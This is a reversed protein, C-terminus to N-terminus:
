QEFPSQRQLTDGPARGSKDKVVCSTNTGCAKVTNTRMRIYYTTDSTGDRVVAVTDPTIRRFTDDDPKGAHADAAADLKKERILAGRAIAVKQAKAASEDGAAAKGARTQLESAIAVKQARVAAEDGAALKWERARDESSMVTATNADFRGSVGSAGAGASAQASGSGIDTGTGGTMSGGGSTGTVGGSVDALVVNGADTQVLGVMVSNTVKVDGSDTSLRALGQASDITIAGSATHGRFAGALNRITLPGGASKITVNFHRPVSIEFRHATSGPAAASDLLSQLEVADGDSRLTVVTHRWDGGGLTAHLEVAPQDWGRIVLTGGTQLTVLLTGGPQADLRRTFTSDANRAAASTARGTAVPRAVLSPRMGALPILVAASLLATAAQFRPSLSRRSRHLDLMARLRSELDSPRAMDLTAAPLAALPRGSRALDLLHSAYIVGPCGDALVRDDAAHEGEVRLRAAAFWIVPHFWFLAEAVTAVLRGLYDCRAVHALEHVVALRLREDTWRAVSSPFLVVPRFLGTTLPAAIAPHALVRVRRRIGASARLDDLHVRVNISAAVDLSSKVMRRVALHGMVSRCFVVLVGVLWLAILLPALHGPIWAAAGAWGTPAAHVTGDSAPIPGIAAAAVTASAAVLPAPPMATTVPLAVDFRPAVPMLL